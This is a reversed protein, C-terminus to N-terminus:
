TALVCARVSDFRPHWALLERARRTDLTLDFGLAQMWAPDTPALRARWALTMATRAVRAPVRLRAGRVLAQMANLSASDACALNFAGQAQRQLVASVAAAVDTEHVCQLHPSAPLAIGIPARLLARLFPHAHPGLIVHPRLRAIRPADARAALEDLLAEVAIKDDAYFFNPLGRRAADEGIPQAAPLAYVAASSLFVIQRVGAARARAFLTASGDVNIARMRARDRGLRARMVVFGAHVLADCGALAALAAPTRFDARLFHYKPHALFPPALDVGIVRTVASDSLLAPLLARALRGSAGTLLLRM